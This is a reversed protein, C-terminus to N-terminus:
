NHDIMWMTLGFGTKFPGGPQGINPQYEWLEYERYVLGINKSYKDVSRIKSGYSDPIVVPVNFSEDASEVTWVDTYVKNRYAISNDFHDYIYDWDAMADDYSNDTSIYEYPNTPLYHNGKWSYGERVPFQLRVFRLNDEIIEVHDQLPTIMYSGDPQWSQLGATDRIYRFVRFSVRGLLDTIQADIVHKQQYKHYEFNRGFDTYVLSDVRYTIYKGVQPNLYDTVPEAEFQETKNSCSSGAFIIVLLLSFSKLSLFRMLPKETNISVNINTDVPDFIIV